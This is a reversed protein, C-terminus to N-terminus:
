KRRERFACFYGSPMEGFRGAQTVIEAGAIGGSTWRGSLTGASDIDIVDYIPRPDDNIVLDPMSPNVLRITLQEPPWYRLQMHFAATDTARRLRKGDGERLLRAVGDAIVDSAYGMRRMTDISARPSFVVRSETIQRRDTGETMVEVFRYQGVLSDRMREMAAKRDLSGIFSPVRLDSDWHSPAWCFDGAAQAGVASASLTLTVIGGFTALAIRRM